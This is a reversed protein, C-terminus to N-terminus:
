RRHDFAAPLLEFIGGAFIPVARRDGPRLLPAQSTPKCASKRAAETQDYFKGLLNFQADAAIRHWLVGFRPKLLL